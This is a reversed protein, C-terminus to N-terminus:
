CALTFRLYSALCYRAKGNIPACLLISVLEGLPSLPDLSAPVIAFISGYGKLNNRQRNDFFDVKNRTLNRM